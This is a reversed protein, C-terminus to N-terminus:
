SVIGLQKFFDYMKDKEISPAIYKAVIKLERCTTNDMAIGIDANKVMEYDNHGDGICILRYDNYLSKIKLIGKYKSDQSHVIDFGKNQNWWFLDFKDKLKENFSKLNDINYSYVWLQSVNDSNNFIDIDEEDRELISKIRNIIFGRNINSGGLMLDFEKAYKTIISIEDLNFNSEYYVKNDIKIYAGNSLVLINFYKLIHSLENIRGPGRGTSIGLVNNSDSSLKDLLKITQPLVENKKNYYLTNDIDFFILNKM